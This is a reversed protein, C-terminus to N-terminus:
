KVTIRLMSRTLYDSLPSGPYGAANMSWSLKDKFSYGSGPFVKVIMGNGDEDLEVLNLHNFNPDLSHFNSAIVLKRSDVAEDVNAGFGRIDFNIRGSYTSPKKNYNVHYKTILVFADAPMPNRYGYKFQMKDLAPLLKRNPDKPDGLNIALLETIEASFNDNELTLRDVDWGGYTPNLAVDFYEPMTTFINTRHWLLEANAIAYQDTPLTKGAKVSQIREIIAVAQARTSTGTLALNGAGTGHLIGKQTAEYVMFNSDEEVEDTQYALTTARVALKVMEIRSLSQNYNTAYDSENHIGFEIVAAVYPQYWPSGEQVHPLMLADVLMRIFEARTVQKDPLFKGDPYGSVYGKTVAEDISVKAWHNLIDTFVPAAAGSVSLLSGVLGISLIFALLRKM